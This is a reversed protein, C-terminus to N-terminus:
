RLSQDTSHAGFKRAFSASLRQGRCYRSWADGTRKCHPRSGVLELQCTIDCRSRDGPEFTAAGDIIVCEGAADVVGTMEARPLISPEDILPDIRDSKAAAFVTRVRKTAGLRPRNLPWQSGERSGSGAPGYSSRSCRANDRCRCQLHPHTLLKSILIGRCTKPDASLANVSPM